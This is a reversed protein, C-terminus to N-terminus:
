NSAPAATGSASADPGTTTAPPTTTAPDTVAPATGAPTAAGEAGPTGPPSVAASPVTGDTVEAPVPAAPEVEGREPNAGFWLFAALAALLAVVIGIIAPRHRRASREPVNDNFSM